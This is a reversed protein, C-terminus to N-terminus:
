APGQVPQRGSDQVLAWETVLSEFRRDLYEDVRSEVPSTISLKGKAGRFYFYIAIVIVVILLIALIAELVTMEKEGGPEPGATRAFGLKTEVAKEVGTLRAAENSLANIRREFDAIDNRTALQWEEIVYKMRRDVYTNLYRDFM